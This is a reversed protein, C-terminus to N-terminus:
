YHKHLPTVFTRACMCLCRCKHTRVCARLRAHSRARARACVKTHDNTDLTFRHYIGEPLVILDGKKCEIRIWQDALDRVDFYGARMVDHCMVDCTRAHVCANPWTCLCACPRADAAHMDAVAANAARCLLREACVTVCSVALALRKRCPQMKCASGGVGERVSPRM